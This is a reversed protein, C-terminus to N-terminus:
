NKQLQIKGPEDQGFHPDLLLPRFDKGNVSWQVVGRGVDVKHNNGNAAVFEYGSVWGDTDAHVVTYSGDDKHRIEKTVSKGDAHFYLERSVKGDTQYEKVSEILYATVRGNKGKGQPEYRWSQHVKVTKGDAHYSKVELGKDARLTRSDHLKGQEYYNEEVYDGDKNREYDSAITKGDAEYRFTRVSGDKRQYEVKSLGNGRADRFTKVETVDGPFTWEEVKQGASNVYEKTKHPPTTASAQQTSSFVLGTTLLLAALVTSLRKM